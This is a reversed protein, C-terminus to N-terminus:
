IRASTRTLVCRFCFRNLGVETLARVRAWPRLPKPLKAIAALDIARQDLQAVAKAEIGRARRLAKAAARRMTTAQTDKCATESLM